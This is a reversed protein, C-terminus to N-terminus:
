VEEILGLHTNAAKTVELQVPLHNERELKDKNMHPIKYHNDGHCDIIQNLCSMYTIWIRNLKSAPYNVFTKKVMEIIEESTRPSEMYYRSQISAFFGLDNINTDPSNAPQHQEQKNYVSFEPPKEDHVLIFKSGEKVLYFWKEDVHIMDYCNRFLTRRTLRNSPEVQDLAYFLRDIKNKEKLKPKLSASHSKLLGEKKRIDQVTSKPIGLVGALGRTTRRAKLPVQLTANMLEKRDHLPKRGCNQRGTAFVSMPLEMPNSNNNPNNVITSQYADVKFKLQRWVKAITKPRVGFHAAIKPYTGDLVRGDKCSGHIMYYIAKRDDSTLQKCGKNRRDINEM